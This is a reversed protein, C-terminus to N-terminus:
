NKTVDDAYLPIDASVKAPYHVSSLAAQAAVGMPVSAQSCAALKM